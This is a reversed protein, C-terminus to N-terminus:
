RRRRQGCRRRDMQGRGLLFPTTRRKEAKIFNKKKKASGNNTTKRTRGKTPASVIRDAPHPGITGLADEVADDDDDVEFLTPCWLIRDIDDDDDYRHRSRDAPADADDDDHHHHQHHTTAPPEHSTEYASEYPTKKEEKLLGLSYGLLDRKLPMFFPIILHPCVGKKCLIVRHATFM